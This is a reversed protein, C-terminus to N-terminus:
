GCSYMMFQEFRIGCLQYAVNADDMRVYVIDM